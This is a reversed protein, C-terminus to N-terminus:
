MLRRLAMRLVRFFMVLRLSHVGCCRQVCTYHRYDPQCLCANSLPPNSYVGVKHIAVSICVKKRCALKEICDQFQQVCAKKASMGIYATTARQDTCMFETNAMNVISATTKQM